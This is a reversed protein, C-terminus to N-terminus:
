LMQSAPLWNQSQQLKQGADLLLQQLSNVMIVLIFM